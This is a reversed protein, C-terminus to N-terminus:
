LQARDAVAHGSIYAMITVVMNVPASTGIVM